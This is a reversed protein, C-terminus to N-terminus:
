LDGILCWRALRGFHSMGDRIYEWGERVACGELESSSPVTGSAEAQLKSCEEEQGGGNEPRVHIALSAALTAQRSDQM